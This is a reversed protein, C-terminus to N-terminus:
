LRKGVECHELNTTIVTGDDLQCRTSPGEGATVSFTFCLAILSFIIKKM